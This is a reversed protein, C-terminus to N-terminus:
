IIKADNCKCVNAINQCQLKLHRTPAQLDSLQQSDDLFWNRWISVQSIGALEGKSQVGSAVEIRLYGSRKLLLPNLLSADAHDKYLLEVRGKREM